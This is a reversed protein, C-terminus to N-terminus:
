RFRKPGVEAWCSYRAGVKTSNTGLCAPETRNGPRQRKEDRLSQFICVRHSATYVNYMLTSWVHLGFALFFTNKFSGMPQTNNHINAKREMHYFNSMQILVQWQMIAKSNPLKWDTLSPRSFTRLKREAKRVWSCHALTINEIPVSSFCQCGYWKSVYWENMFLITHSTIIKVSLGESAESLATAEPYRRSGIAQKIESPRYWSISTENLPAQWNQQNPDKPWTAFSSAAYVCDRRPRIKCCRAKNHLGPQRENQVKSSQFAVM